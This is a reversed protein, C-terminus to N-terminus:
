VYIKALFMLNRVCQNIGMGSNDKYYAYTVYMGAKKGEVFITYLNQVFTSDYNTQGKRLGDTLLDM